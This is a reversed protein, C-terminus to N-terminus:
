LIQSFLGELCLVFVNFCSSATKTLLCLLLPPLRQLAFTEKDLEEKALAEQATSELHITPMSNM